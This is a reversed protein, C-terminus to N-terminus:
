LLSHSYRPQIRLRSANAEDMYTSHMWEGRSHIRGRGHVLFDLKAELLVLVGLQQRSLLLRGIHEEIMVIEQGIRM